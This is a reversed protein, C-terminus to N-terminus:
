EEIECKITKLFRHNEDGLCNQAQQETLPDSCSYGNNKILKYINIWFTKTKPAMFLYPEKSGSTGNQHFYNYQGNEKDVCILSRSDYKNKTFLHFDIYERGLKDVVKEGALAKELDFAKM